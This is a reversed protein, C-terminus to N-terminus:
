NSMFTFADFRLNSNWNHAHNTLGRPDAITTNVPWIIFCPSLGKPRALKCGVPVGSRNSIDERRDGRDMVHYIAGPYEVRMARPMSGLSDANGDGTLCGIAPTLGLM